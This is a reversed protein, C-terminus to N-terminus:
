RVMFWGAFVTYQGRDCNEPDSILKNSEDLNTVEAIGPKHSWYGDSNQEYWHYDRDPEIVLAVKRFGNEPIAYKTTEYFDDGFDKKVCFVINEKSIITLPYGSIDGPQLPYFEEKACSKLVAYQYCNNYGAKNNWISPNYDWESGGTPLLTEAFITQSFLLVFTLILLIYKKIDKM